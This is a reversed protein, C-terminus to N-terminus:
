GMSRRREDVALGGQNRGNWDEVFRPLEEASIPKGIFYGQARNCGIASLDDLAGESEVGEACTSLGLNGALDVISRVIIRAEESEEIETVFSQDIKLENFPLRYLEVLSSYGTGFDDLSLGIKKLRFRTLIEAAKIGEDM